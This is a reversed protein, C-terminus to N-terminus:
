GLRYFNLAYHEKGILLDPENPYIARTVIAM